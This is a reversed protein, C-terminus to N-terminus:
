LNLCFELAHQCQHLAYGYNASVGWDYPRPERAWRTYLFLLIRELFLRSVAPQTASLRVERPADPVDYSSSASLEKKLTSGM